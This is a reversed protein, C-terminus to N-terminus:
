QYLRFTVPYVGVAFLIILMYRLGDAIAKDLIIRQFLSALFFRMGLVLLLGVVLKVVQQWRTRTKTEFHVWKRDIWWAILMGSSCGLLLWVKERVDPSFDFILTLVACLIGIGTLVALVLGEQWPTRDVKHFVWLMFFFLSVAVLLSVFVDAPTHVGLYMRSFGVLLILIISVITAWRRKIMVALSGMLSVAVATHGSPFSYGTAAGKASEITQLSPDRVWPRPVRFILKLLENVTSCVFFVSFLRYGSRKDVCWLVILLVGVFVVEEGLRTVWSFFATLWPTRISELMHLFSM